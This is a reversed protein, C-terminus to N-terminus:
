ELITGGESSWVFAWFQQEWSTEHGDLYRSKGLAARLQTILTSFEPDDVRAHALWIRALAFVLIAHFLTIRTAKQPDYARPAYEVAFTDEDAHRGHFRVQWKALYSTYHAYPQVAKALRGIFEAWPEDWLGTGYTPWGCM